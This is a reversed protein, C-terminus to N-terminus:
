LDAAFEWTEDLEPVLDGTGIRETFVSLIHDVGTASPARIAQFGTTYATEGIRRPTGLDTGLIQGFTAALHDLTQGVTLDLVRELSVEYRYLVRPLLGAVGITRREGLRRFEAVACPRTTCLYVVPFSDPPNFRGGHMQAGEGSMPLSRHAAMHRFAVGQYPHYPATRVREVVNTVELQSM